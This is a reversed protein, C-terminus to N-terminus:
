PKSAALPPIKSKMSLRAQYILGVWLWALVPKNPLMGFVLCALWWRWDLLIFLTVNKRRRYFVVSSLAIAMIFSQGITFGILHAWEETSLLGKEPQAREAWIRLGVVLVGSLIAWIGSCIFGEMISSAKYSGGSPQITTYGSATPLPADSM